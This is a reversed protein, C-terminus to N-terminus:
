AAAGNGIPPRSGVGPHAPGAVMSPRIVASLNRRYRRSLRMESGDTLRIMADGRGLSRVEFVRDLRVLAGRHVRAFEGDPLQREFASLSSEVLHVAGGAHVEAYDDAAGIWDIDATSILRLLGKSRVPLRILTDNPAGSTSAEPADSVALTRAAWALTAGVVMVYFLANTDLNALAMRETMAWRSAIAGDGNYIPWYLLAFIAVHLTAAVPLGLACAAALRWGRSLQAEARYVALAILPSLIAWVSFIALSYGVSPWWPQPTSRYASVAHGQLAFVLAIASWLLLDVAALLGAHSLATRKTM